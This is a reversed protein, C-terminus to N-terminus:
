KQYLKIWAEIKDMLDLPSLNVSNCKDVFAKAQERLLFVDPVAAIEILTNGNEIYVAIGFSDYIIGEIEPTKSEFIKYIYM